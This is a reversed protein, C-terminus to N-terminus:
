GRVDHVTAPIRLGHLPGAPAPDLEGALLLLEHRAPHRERARGATAHRLREVRHLADPQEVTTALAPYTAHWDALQNSYDAALSSPTWDNCGTNVHLAVDFGQLAYTNADATTIAGAYVYSTSRVCEWNVVSCGPTSAGVEAAFRGATGGNGASSHDDGTMVVAAEEGRPLYWFRPLPARDREVHLVLNALLRQQEDAQPIQVKDLDVWDAQQDSAKAGFFLDDSRIPPTGDREDGSWAPNGQRTYVVSRALDYTFAAAQGGNSGVNRLTVAPNSTATIADSFLTAVAPRARSHTATPTATSSCRRAPSARAPRRATAVRLYGNALPGGQPTIGLLNALDADPRMSILNGGGTAYAGFMNAQTTNLPMPGLVVVDYAALEAGDVSAIDTTRYANLGEAQLIDGLYRGFPDATSTVVLIPGDSGEDPPPPAATFSWTM